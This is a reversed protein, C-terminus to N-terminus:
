CSSAGGAPIDNAFYYLTMGQADVLIKELTTDATKITDPPRTAPLTTPQPTPQPVQTQTCGAILLVSIVALFLIFLSLKKM